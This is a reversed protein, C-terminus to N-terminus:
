LPKPDLLGFVGAARAAVAGALLPALTAVYPIGLRRGFRRDVYRLEALVHAAGFTALTLSYM